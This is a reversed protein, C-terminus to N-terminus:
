WSTAHDRAHLRDHGGRRPRDQREDRLRQAAACTGVSNRPISLAAYGTGGLAVVLALTAIVLAPTVRVRRRAPAPVELM